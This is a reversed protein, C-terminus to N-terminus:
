GEIYWRKSKLVRNERKPKTTARKPSPTPSSLVQNELSHYWIFYALLITFICWSILLFGMNCCEHPVKMKYLLNLCPDEEVLMVIFVGFYFYFFLNLGMFCLIQMRRKDKLISLHYYLLRLSYTKCSFQVPFVYLM